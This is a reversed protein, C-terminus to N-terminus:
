GPSKLHLLNTTWSFALWGVGFSILSFLFATQAGVSYSVVTGAALVSLFLTYYSLFHRHPPHTTSQVGATPVLLLFCFVGSLLPAGWKGLGGILLLVIGALLLASMIKAGQREHANLLYRGHSDFSLVVNFLPEMLWTMLVFGFYVAMLGLTFTPWSQGSYAFVIRLIVIWCIMLILQQKGGYRSIWFRYRQFLRYIGYRAKLAELMGERAWALSPDLRLAERFANLAENHQQAHLLSWGRNTHVRPNEPDHSLALNLNEVAEASAGMRVLTMSRLNLADIHEPAYALAQEAAQLAASWQSQQWYILGLRTHYDPDEPDIHLATMYAEQAAKLDGKDQYVVGLIYHSYSLDPGLAVAQEAHTQAAQLQHLESHCLALFAHIIPKDPAEQLWDHLVGLAMAYRQQDLLWQVREAYNHM